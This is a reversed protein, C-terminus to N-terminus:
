EKWLNLKKWGELWKDYMQKEEESGVEPPKVGKTIIKDVVKRRFVEISPVSM